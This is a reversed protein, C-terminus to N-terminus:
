ASTELTRYGAFARLYNRCQAGADQWGVDGLGPDCAHCQLVQTTFGQPLMLLSAALAAQLNASVAAMVAKDQVIHIVPKHLRGAVLLTDWATLDRLLTDVGVVGYKVM